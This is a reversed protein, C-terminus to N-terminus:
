VPPLPRLAADTNGLLRSATLLERCVRWRGAGLPARLALGKQRVAARALLLNAVNACAILLVLSIATLLVLLKTRADSVLSQQLPVVTASAWLSDPMRWPFMRRM